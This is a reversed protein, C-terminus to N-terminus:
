KLTRLPHSKNFESLYPNYTFYIVKESVPCVFITLSQHSDNKIGKIVNRLRQIVPKVKEEPYQNLLEAEAEKARDALINELVGANKMEPEFRIFISIRPNHENYEPLSACDHLSEQNNNV